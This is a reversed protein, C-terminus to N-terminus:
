KKSKPNREFNDSDLFTFQMARLVYHLFLAFCLIAIITGVFGAVQGVADCRDDVVFVFRRTCNWFVNGYFWFIAEFVVFAISAKVIEKRM